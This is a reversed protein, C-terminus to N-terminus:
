IHLYIIIYKFVSSDHRSKFTDLSSPTLALVLIKNSWVWKPFNVPNQVSFVLFGTGHLVQTKGYFTCLALPGCCSSRITLLLIWLLSLHTGNSWLAQKDTNSSSVLRTSFFFSTHKSLVHMWSPLDASTSYSSTENRYMLLHFPIDKKCCVYWFLWSPLVLRTSFFFSM